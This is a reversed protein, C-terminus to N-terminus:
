RCIVMSVFENLKAKSVNYTTFRLYGIAALLSLSWVLVASDSGDASIRFIHLNYLQFGYVLIINVSANQM